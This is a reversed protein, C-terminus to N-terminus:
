GRSSSTSRSPRANAGNPSSTALKSLEGLDIESAEQWAEMINALQTASCLDLIALDDDSLAWELPGWLQMEPDGRARRLIGVPLEALPKFTLTHEEGEVTVTYRFERGEYPNPRAAATAPVPEPPPLEVQQIENTTM